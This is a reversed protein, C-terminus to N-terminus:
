AFFADYLHSYVRRVDKEPMEALTSLEPVMLLMAIRLFRKVNIRLSKHSNYLVM